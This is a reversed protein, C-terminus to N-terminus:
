FPPANQKVGYEFGKRYGNQYVGHKWDAFIERILDVIFVVVTLLILSCALFAIATLIFDM